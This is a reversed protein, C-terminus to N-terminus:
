RAHETGDGHGEQRESLLEQEDGEVAVHSDHKALAGGEPVRDEVEQDAGGDGESHHGGPGEHGKAKEDRGGERRAEDGTM